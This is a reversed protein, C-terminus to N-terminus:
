LLYKDIYTSFITEIKVTFFPTPDELLQYVHILSSPTLDFSITIQIYVATMVEFIVAGSSPVKLQIKWVWKYTTLKIYNQEM